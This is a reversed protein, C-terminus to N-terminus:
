EAWAGPRERRCRGTGPRWRKSRSQCLWRRAPARMPSIAFLSRPAIPSAGQLTQMLLKKLIRKQTKTEAGEAVKQEFSWYMTGHTQKKFLLGSLVRLM